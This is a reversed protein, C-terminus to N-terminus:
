SEAPTTQNGQDDYDPDGPWPGASDGDEAGPDPEPPLPPVSALGGGAEAVKKAPAKKAAKPTEAKVADVAEQVSPAPGGNEYDFTEAGDAGADLALARLLNKVTTEHKAPVLAVVGPILNIRETGDIDRTLRGHTARIIFVSEAGQSEAMKRAADEGVADELGKANLHANHTRKEAM